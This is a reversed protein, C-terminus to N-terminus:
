ASREPSEPRRTVVVPCHATRVVREAVSGLLARSIGTRGRTALVLADVHHASAFRVIQEAPDGPEVHAQVPAGTM